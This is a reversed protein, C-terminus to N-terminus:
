VLTFGVKVLTGSATNVSPPEAGLQWQSAFAAPTNTANALRFYSPGELHLHQWPMTEDILMAVDNTADGSAPEAAHIASALTLAAFTAVILTWRTM